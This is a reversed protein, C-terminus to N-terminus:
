ISKRYSESINLASFIIALMVFSQGIVIAYPVSLVLSGLLFGYGTAWSFFQLRGTLSAQLNDLSFKTILIKGEEESLGQLYRILFDKLTMWMLIIQLSWLIILIQPNLLKFLYILYTAWAVLAGDRIHDLWTGHITVNNNNRALPGDLGDILAVVLLIMLQANLSKDSFYFYIAIFLLLVSFWGLRNATIGLRWLIDTLPRLAADRWSKELATLFDDKRKIVLRKIKQREERGRERLKEISKKIKHNKPLPNNEM